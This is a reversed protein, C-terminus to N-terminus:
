REFKFREIIKLFEISLEQLFDDDLRGNIYSNSKMLPQFMLLLSDIAETDKEQAKKVLTEIDVGINM